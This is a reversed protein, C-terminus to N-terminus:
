AKGLTYPTKPAAGLWTPYDLDKPPDMPATSGGPRSAACWVTIHKLKGIRGNRVLQCAQRFQASSRQQTGFQFIRQRAQCVRRLAQDDEVSLGMPKELYMDKGAKAAALAVPVHWHDPTAILVADIDRRELLDDFHHYVTPRDGAYAASVQKVAADLNRASVDSLAVVRCGPNRLFNGMDGRGQPGLGICGVAIRNGPANQGLVSAPVLTPFAAAAVATGAQIKLFRRRSISM